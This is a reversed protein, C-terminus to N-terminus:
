FCYPLFVLAGTALAVLAAVLVAGAAVDKIWKVRPHYEPSLHDMMKEIVTNLMETIWVLGTVIIIAIWQPAPLRCYWGALLVAVTAAAHLRAHPESCLFAAIGSIAFKFSLLRQRFYKRSTM